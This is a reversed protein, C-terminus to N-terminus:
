FLYQFNDDLVIVMGNMQSVLTASNDGSMTFQSVCHGFVCLVIFLALANM